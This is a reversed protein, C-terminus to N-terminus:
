LLPRIVGKISDLCSKLYSVDGANFAGIPREYRAQRSFHQLERYDNYISSIQQDRGIASDRTTHTQYTYGNKVFYAQVYHVAAYFM